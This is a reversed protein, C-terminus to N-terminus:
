KVKSVLQRFKENTRILNFDTDNDIQAKSGYGNSIAYDLAKLANELDNLKAYACALNYSDFNSPSIAIAKEYYQAAEKNRDAVLLFFGLRSYDNREMRGTKEANAIYTEAEKDKKAMYMLTALNTMAELNEPEMKLVKEYVAVAEDNKKDQRLQGAYFLLTPVNDSYEEVLSQLLAMAKPRDMQLGGLIDRGKSRAWSPAPVNDLHNKWFSITEKILIRAEDNDSIADFAHPMRTGMKITWPANNKLVEGWLGNYGPNMDGEAILFMVPLDKRFPGVPPRGYYLAAAKIGKFAEDSMLYKASQSVNASAAYVGLRDKDIGYGAGKTELFKFLSQLSQIVKAGDTEMSIGVYGQAAMLRPWSTYITWSKVKPRGPTEGIANLFIIAPRKEGAKMGQPSYIDIHLSNKADELYTVDTKVNVSKMGPDDLIVGFNQMDMPNKPKTTQATVSLVPLLAAILFLEKM